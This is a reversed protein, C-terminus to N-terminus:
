STESTMRFAPSGCHETAYAHFDEIAAVEDRTSPYPSIRTSMESMLRMGTRALEPMREPPVVDAFNENWEQIRSEVSGSGPLETYASCLAEIDESPKDSEPHTPGCGALGITM